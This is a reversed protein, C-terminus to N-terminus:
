VGRSDHESLLHLHWILFAWDIAILILILIFSHVYKNKLEVLISRMNASKKLIYRYTQVSSLVPM